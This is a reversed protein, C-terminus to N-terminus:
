SEQDIFAGFQHVYKPEHEHHLPLQAYVHTRPGWDAHSSVKLQCKRAEKNACILIKGVRGRLLALTKHYGALRM